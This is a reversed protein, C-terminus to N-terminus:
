MNINKAFKKISFLQMFLLFILYRKFFSYKNDYKQPSLILEMSGHSNLQLQNIIQGSTSIYASIGSNAVRILPLGLEVARFRAMALHQYPGITTGFWIDNTINLMWQPKIAETDLKEEINPFIIEYCNFPIFPIIGEPNLVRSKNNGPSFDEFGYTFKKIFPLYQKLPIYEGFPVLTEKDYFSKQNSNHDIIFLSNYFKRENSNSDIEMKDAGFILHSKENLLKALSHFHRDNTITFPFGGEPWIILNAEYSSNLSLRFLRDIAEYMKERDGMHPTINPQVVLIKIKENNKEKNIHELHNFGIIYSTITLLIAIFILKYNRTYLCSSIFIVLFSCGFIGFYYALQLMTTSSTLSYGVLNWPFPIFLYSRIWEIIVWIAPFSLARIIRGKFHFTILTTCGIYIALISPLLIVAIPLLWWFSNIDIFLSNAIWYLSSVFHGFGFFYGILFAQKSNQAKELIYLIGSFSIISLIIINFPSFTLTLLLGLFLSSIYLKNNLKIKRTLPM